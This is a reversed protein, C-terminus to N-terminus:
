LFFPFQQVNNEPMHLAAARSGSKKQQASNEAASLKRSEFAREGGRPRIANSYATRVDEGL